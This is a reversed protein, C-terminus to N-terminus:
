TRNVKLALVLSKINTASKVDIVLVDGVALTKSWGTLTSSSASLASTIAPLESGCISGTTPTVYSAGKYIDVQVSGSVDGSLVWGFIEASYPMVVTSKKAGVAIVNSNNNVKFVIQAPDKQKSTTVKGAEVRTVNNIGSAAVYGYFSGWFTFFATSTQDVADVVYVLSGSALLACVGTPSGVISNQIDQVYSLTGELDDYFYSTAAANISLAGITITGGTSNRFGYRAM